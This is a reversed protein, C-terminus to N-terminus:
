ATASVYGQPTIEPSFELLTAGSSSWIHVEAGWMVFRSRVNQIFTASSREEQGADSSIPIPGPGFDFESQGGPWLGFRIASGRQEPVVVFSFKLAILDGVARARLAGDRWFQFGDWPGAPPNANSASPVLNRMMRVWTGSPIVLPTGADQDSYDVTGFGNNLPGPPGQIGQFGQPGQPGPVTVAMVQPRNAQSVSVKARGRPATVIEPARM